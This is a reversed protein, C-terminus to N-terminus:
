SATTSNTIIGLSALQTLLSALAGEPNNRAGTVTVLPRQVGNVLTLRLSLADAVPLTNFSSLLSNVQSPTGGYGLVSVTGRVQCQRLNVIGGNGPNGGDGAQGADCNINGVVLCEDLSLLGGVGGDQGEGGNNGALNVTGIVANYVSFDPGTAGSSNGTLNITVGKNSFIHVHQNDVGDCVITVQSVPSNVQTPAWPTGSATDVFDNAALGFIYFDVGTEGTYTITGADGPAVVLNINGDAFARTASAWPLASSGDGTTDSGNVPDIFVFGNPSWPNASGGGTSNGAAVFIQKLLETDQTGMMEGGVADLATEIAADSFLTYTSISM